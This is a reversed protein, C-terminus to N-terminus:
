RTFSNGNGTESQRDPIRRALRAAHGTNFDAISLRCNSIV